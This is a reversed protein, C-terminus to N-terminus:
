GSDLYGGPKVKGKAACLYPYLRSCCLFAGVSAGPVCFLKWSCLFVRFRGGGEPQPSPPPPRTGCLAELEGSRRAPRRAPPAPPPPERTATLGAAPQSRQPPIRHQHATQSYRHSALLPAPLLPDQRAPRPQRSASPPLHEAPARRRAGEAFNAPPRLLLAAAPSCCGRQLHGQPAEQWRRAQPLPASAASAM